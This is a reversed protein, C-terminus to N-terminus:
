SLEHAFVEATSGAANGILLIDDEDELVGSESLIERITYHGSSLGRDPDTWFVQDGAKLNKRFTKGDVATTM